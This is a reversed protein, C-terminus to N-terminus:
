RCVCRGAPGMQLLNAAPLRARPRCGAPAATHGCRDHNTSDDYYSILMTPNDTGYKRLLEHAAAQQPTANAFSQKAHKQAAKLKMKALKSAMKKATARFACMFEARRSCMM